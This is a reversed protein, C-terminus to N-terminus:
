VLWALKTFSALHCKGYHRLYRALWISNIAQSIEKLAVSLCTIFHCMILWAEPEPVIRM